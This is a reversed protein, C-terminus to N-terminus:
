PNEEFDPILTDGGDWRFRCINTGCIIGKKTMKKKAEQAHGKSDFLWLTKDVAALHAAVFGELKTIYDAAQRSEEMFPDVGGTAVSWLCRENEKLM